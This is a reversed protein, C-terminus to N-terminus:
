RDTEPAEPSEPATFQRRVLALGARIERLLDAETGDTAHWNRLVAVLIAAVASLVIRAQVETLGLHPRSAVGAAAADVIEDIVLAGAAQIEPVGFWLHVRRTTLDDPDGTHEPTMLDIAHEVTSILDHGNLLSPLLELLVDDHDDHLVLREKTGFYRYVTSPSVDATEAVQEITVKEFGNTEFLEIACRQIRRM